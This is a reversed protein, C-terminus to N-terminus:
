EAVVTNKALRVPENASILEAQKILMSKALLQTQVLANNTKLSMELDIQAAVLITAPDVKEVDVLDIGQASISTSFMGALLVYLSRKFRTKTATKNTPNTAISTSINTNINNM